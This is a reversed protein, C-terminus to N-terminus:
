DVEIGEVGYLKGVLALGWGLCYLGISLRSLLHGTREAKARVEEADSTIQASLAKLVNTFSDLDYSMGELRKEKAYLADFQKKDWRYDERELQYRSGAVDFALALEDQIRSRDICNVNTSPL